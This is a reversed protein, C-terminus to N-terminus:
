LFLYSNIYSAASAYDDEVRLLSDLIWPHVDDPDGIGIVPIFRGSMDAAALEYHAGVSENIADLNVVVIDVKDRLVGIEFRKVEEQSQQIQEEYNYFFPPHIFNIKVEPAEQEMAHQFRIRWGMQESLSLGSMKGCTYLTYEKM